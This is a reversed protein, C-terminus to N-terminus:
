EYYNVSEIHILGGGATFYDRNFDVEIMEYKDGYGSSEVLGAMKQEAMNKEFVGVVKITVDVGYDVDGNTKEVIMYVKPSNNLEQKVIMENVEDLWDFDIKEENNVFRAEWQKVSVETDGVTVIDDVLHFSYRSYKRGDFDSGYVPEMLTYNFDKLQVKKDVEYNFEIEDGEVGSIFIIEGVKLIGELAPAVFTILVYQGEHLAYVFDKFYKM